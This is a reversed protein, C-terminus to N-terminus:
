RTFLKVGEFLGARLEDIDRLTNEPCFSVRIASDILAPDLRMAALVHSRHGRSCASGSSVYVERQQLVRMLVESRAGPLSFNLIHASADDPSNIILGPIEKLKERAYANLERLTKLDGHLREQRFRCAEGLAAIAPLAETGSRLGKEQGGGYLIPPIRIGEATYLAGAGKVGGIKHGSVSILDAGSSVLPKETKMFAQVADLHLLAPSRMSKLGERVEEFPLVAGTENNIAMMTVLCADEANKLIEGANVNGKKDPKVLIVTFGQNELAKLTELTAAHEIETSIIKRKQRGYKHAAGSIATNISETGGSTFMIEGGGAGLASKVRERALSLENAAELGLKHMASPNGFRETMIEAAKKAAPEITRTTAANDLYHM